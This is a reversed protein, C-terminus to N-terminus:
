RQPRPPPFGMTGANGGDEGGSQLYDQYAAMHPWSESQSNLDLGELGIRSGHVSSSGSHLDAADFFVNFGGAPSSYSNPESFLDRTGDGGFGDM